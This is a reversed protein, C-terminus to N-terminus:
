SNSKTANWLAFFRTNFRCHLLLCSISCECCMYPRVSNFVNLADDVCNNTGVHFCALKSALSNTFHFNASFVTWIVCLGRPHTFVEIKIKFIQSMAKELRTPLNKERRMTKLAHGRSFFRSVKKERRM